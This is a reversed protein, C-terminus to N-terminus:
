QPSSEGRSREQASCRFFFTGPDGDSFRSGGEPENRPNFSQFVKLFNDCIKKKALTSFFNSPFYHIQFLFLVM